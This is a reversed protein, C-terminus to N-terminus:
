VIMFCLPNLITEREWSTKTMLFSLQLVKQKHENWSLITEMFSLCGAKKETWFLLTEWLFLKNCYIATSWENLSWDEFASWLLLQSCILKNQVLFVPFIVCCYDMKTVLNHKYYWPYKPHCTCLNLSTCKLHALHTTRAHSGWPFCICM